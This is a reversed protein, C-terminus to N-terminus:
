AMTGTSDRMTTPRSLATPMLAAAEPLWMTTHSPLPEICTSRIEHFQMPQCLRTSSPALKM